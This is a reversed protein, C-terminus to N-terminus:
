NPQKRRWLWGVGVIIAVVNITYPPLDVWDSKLMGPLTVIAAGMLMWAFGNSLARNSDSDNPKVPPAASNELAKGILSPIHPLQHAMEPWNKGLERLM